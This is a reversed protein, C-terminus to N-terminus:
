KALTANWIRVETRECRQAYCEQLAYAATINTLIAYDQSGDANYGIVEYFTKHM